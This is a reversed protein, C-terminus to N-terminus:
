LHVKLLYLTMVCNAFSAAPSCKHRRKMWLFNYCKLVKSLREPFIVCKSKHCQQRLHAIYLLGRWHRSKKAISQQTKFSRAIELRKRNNRLSMGNKHTGLRFIKICTIGNQCRQNIDKNAISMKVSKLETIWKSHTWIIRKFSSITHWHAAFQKVFFDVLRAAFRPRSDHKLSASSIVSLIKTQTLVFSLILPPFTHFSVGLASRHTNEV